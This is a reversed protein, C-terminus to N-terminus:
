RSWLRGRWGLLLAVAFAAAAAVLAGQVLALAEAPVAAYSPLCLFPHMPQTIHPWGRCASPVAEVPRGAYLALTDCSLLNVCRQAAHQPAPPTAAGACRAGEPPPPPSGSAPREAAREAASLKRGQNGRWNRACDRGSPRCRAQRRRGGSAPSGLGSSFGAHHQAPLQRFYPVSPVSLLRAPLDASSPLRM